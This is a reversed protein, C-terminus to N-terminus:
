LPKRRDKLSCILPKLTKNLCFGDERKINNPHLEIETEERIIRDMYRLKISVASTNRLLVHHAFNISNKVAASRDPDELRIHRDHEKLRTRSGLQKM